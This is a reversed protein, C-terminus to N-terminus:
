PKGPASEATGAPLASGAGRALRAQLQRTRFRLNGIHALYTRQQEQMLDLTPAPGAEILHRLWPRPDASRDREAGDNRWFLQLAGTGNTASEDANEVSVLRYLEERLLGISPNPGFTEPLIGTARNFVSDPFQSRAQGLVTEALLLLTTDAATLVLEYAITQLLPLGLPRTAEAFFDHSANDEDAIPSQWDAEPMGEAGQAYNHWHVPTGVVRLRAATDQPYTAPLAFRSIVAGTSAQTTRERWLVGHAFTLTTTLWGSAREVDSFVRGYANSTGESGGKWYRLTWTSDCRGQEDFYGIVTQPRHAPDGYGPEGTYRYPGAAFETVLVTTDRETDLGQKERESLPHEDDAGPDFMTRRPLPVTRREPRTSRRASASTTPPGPQGNRWPVDAYTAPGNLKGSAYTETTTTRSAINAPRGGFGAYRTETAAWPGTRQGHVYAGATRHERDPVVVTRRSDVFVPVKKVLEFRGHRVRQGDQGLYYTYTARGGEYEGQYTKLAPGTNGVQAQVSLCGLPLLLLATLLLNRM